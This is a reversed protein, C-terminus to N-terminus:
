KGRKGLVVDVTLVEKGRRIVLTVEDGPKKLDIQDKLDALSRITEGDLGTVVDGPRLGAKEAPSGPTVKTITCDEAKPDALIGLYPQGSTKKVRPRKGWVESKALRDWADSYANVPVHINTTISTGICSHIGIVRGRLDFVPGGSDGGVLTCDTRLFSRYIDLIRGVRVVPSRGEQYGGPHGTAICWQGKIVKASDGMRAFPWPGKDTIKILGSDIARNRGLTKGKATKGDPFIITVPRGPKGSVHGATLVYGDKSVIVGSGQSGAVRLGVTCPLVKKLVQKVRKQIAKLDEVRYNGKSKASATAPALVAALCVVIWTFQLRGPNM